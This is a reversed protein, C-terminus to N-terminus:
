CHMPTSGLSWFVAKSLDTVSEYPMKQRLISITPIPLSNCHDCLEIEELCFEEIRFPKLFDPYKCFFFGYPFDYRTLTQRSYVFINEVETLSPKLLPTTCFFSFKWTRKELMFRRKTISIFNIASTHWVIGRGRISFRKIKKSSGKLVYKSGTKINRQTVFM